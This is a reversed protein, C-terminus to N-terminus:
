ADGALSSYLSRTRRGDRFAAAMLRPSWLLGAVLLPSCFLSARWDPYRGAGLEWAAMQFEGRMTMPHGAMLHHLDHARLARRRWAFNPFRLVFPGVRCTWRREAPAGRAERRLLSLAEDRTLRRPPM